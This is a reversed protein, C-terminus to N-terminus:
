SPQYSCPSIDTQALHILLVLFQYGTAALDMPLFLSQYRTAALQIPLTMCPSICFCIYTYTFRKLNDNPRKKLKLLGHLFRGFSLKFLNVYLNRM